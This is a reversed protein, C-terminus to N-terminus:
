YTNSPFVMPEKVEQVKEEGCLLRVIQFAFPFATGPGRSSLETMSAHHGAPFEYRTILKGSTVVSEEKYEFDTELQSKVSPHSTLPQNPLKSTKAALSGPLNLDTYSPSNFRKRKGACIMGVVRGSTYQEALLIQVEKSQSLTEAGKYGGPV